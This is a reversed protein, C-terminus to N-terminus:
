QEPVQLAFSEGTSTAVTRARHSPHHHSGTLLQQRQQPAPTGISMASTGARIELSHSRIVSRSLRMRKSPSHERSSSTSSRTLEISFPTLFRLKPCPNPKMSNPKTISLRLMFVSPVPIPM